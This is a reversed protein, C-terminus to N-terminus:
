NNIFLFLELYFSFITLYGNHSIFYHYQSIKNMCGVGLILTNNRISVHLSSTNRYALESTLMLRTGKKHVKQFLPNELFYARFQVVKILKFGLYLRWSYFALALSYVLKVTVVM